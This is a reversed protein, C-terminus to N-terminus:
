SFVNKFWVNNKKRTTNALELDAILNFLDISICIGSQNYNRAVGRVLNEIFSVFRQHKKVVEWTVLFNGLFNLFRELSQDFKSCFKM